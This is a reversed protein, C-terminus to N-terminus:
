GMSKWDQYKWILEKACWGMHYNQSEHADFYGVLFREVVELLESLAPKNAIGQFSKYAHEIHQMSEPNFPYGSKRVTDPRKHEAICCLLPFVYDELHLLVYIDYLDKVRRPLRGTCMASLKDALMTYNDYVPCVISPVIDTAILNLSAVNYDIGVKCIDGSRAIVKFVYGGSNGLQRRDKHLEFVYTDTGLNLWQTVDSFVRQVSDSSGVHLDIDHTFRLYEPHKNILKASLAAAGKLVLMREKDRESIRNVMYILIDYVDQRDM